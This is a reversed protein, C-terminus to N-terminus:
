GQARHPSSIEYPAGLHISPLILRDASATARLILTLSAFFSPQGIVLILETPLEIDVCM